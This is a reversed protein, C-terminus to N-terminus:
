RGSGGAHGHGGRGFLLEVDERRYERALEVEVVLAADAVPALEHVVQSRVEAQQPEHVVVRVEVMMVVVVVLLGGLRLGRVESSQVRKRAAEVLLVGGRGSLEGVM